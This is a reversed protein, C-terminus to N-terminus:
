AWPLPAPCFLIDARCSPIKAQQAGQEHRLPDAGGHAVEAVLGHGPRLHLPPEFVEAERGRRELRQPRLTQDRREGQGTAIM